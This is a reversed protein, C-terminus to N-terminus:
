ASSVSLLTRTATFYTIVNLLYIHEYLPRQRLQVSRRRHRASINYLISVSTQHISVISYHYSAVSSCCAPLHHLHLNFSNKCLPYLLIWINISINQFTNLVSLLDSFRRPTLSGELLRCYYWIVITYMIITRWLRRSYWMLFEFISIIWNRSACKYIICIYYIHIYYQVIM